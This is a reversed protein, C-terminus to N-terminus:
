KAYKEMFQELRMPRDYYFGQALVDGFARIDETIEENEVGEFCVLTERAATGECLAKAYAVSRENHNLSLVFERDLKVEDVDLNLLLDITTYGTGMDDLALRIGKARLGNVRRELLSFNMAKCRETLELVLHDAPYQETELIKLVDDIFHKDRLQTATINVSIRFEPCVALIKKADRVAWELIRLGLTDYCPDNELMTIFRSPPIEGKEPDDWRILAEAGALVGDRVRIIPQYKLYFREQNGNADNYVATLLSLDERQNEEPEFFVVDLADTAFANNMAYLLGGRLGHHDAFGCEPMCVAAGYARIPILHSEVQIGSECETRIEKFVARVKDKDAHPFYLAFETGTNSFARGCNATVRSLIDSFNKILMVSQDYGYLIRIRNLNGNGLKLIAFEKEEKISNEVVEDLTDYNPLGTVSDRNARSGHNYVTGAFIDPQGDKGHCISGRCTCSVYENNRNLARYECFHYQKKGNMTAALDELYLSRDDPHIRESWVKDFDLYFESDMGFEDKWEPDIRAVGTEMNMIFPYVKESSACMADFIRDTLGTLNLRTGSGVRAFAINRKIDTKNRCMMYDAVRLVDRLSKYEKSSIAYGIAVVPRCPMDASQEECSQRVRELDKMVTKESTKHYIALFEDGGMRYVKNANRLGNLLAVAVFSIYEDGVSHGYLGNISKLNNIDAFVFTYSDDPKESFAKDYAKIDEEYTNRTYVGTMADTMMKHELAIAPNETSFFFGVTVITIAGGTFLLERWIIQATEAVILLLMMPVLSYRVSNSLKKWNTFIMIMGAVFYMFAVGYGVYAAPGTSSWTGTGTVDVFEIPIFPLLLLYLFPPILLLTTVFRKATGFILKIIYICIEYSFFIATMYFIVHFAYNLVYAVQGTHNVTWVTVVDMIVHSIAFAILHTFTLSDKGMRYRKSLTALFILIILCVIEERLILTPYM